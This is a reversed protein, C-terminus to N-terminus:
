SATIEVKRAQEAAPAPVSVELMGDKYTATVDSETVGRPMPLSRFFSGYRLERRVYGPEGATDETEEHREARITLMGDSISVDVDKAPDIGPIEARIVLDGNRRFEDVRLVHEGGWEVAPLLSRFPMWEPWAAVLREFPDLHMARPSTVTTAVPAATGGGKKQSKV